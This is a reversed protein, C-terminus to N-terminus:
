LRWPAMLVAIQIWGERRLRDLRRCARCEEGLHCSPAQGALHPLARGQARCAMARIYVATRHAPVLPIAEWRAWEEPILPAPAWRLQLVAAAPAAPAVGGLLAV